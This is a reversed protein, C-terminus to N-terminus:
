SCSRTAIMLRDTRGTRVCAKINGAFNICYSLKGAACSNEFAFEQFIDNNQILCALIPTGTSVKVSLIRKIRWLESLM